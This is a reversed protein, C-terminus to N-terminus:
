RSGEQARRTKAKAIMRSREDSQTWTPRLIRFTELHTRGGSSGEAIRGRLTMEYLDVVTTPRLEVEWEIQRNDALRMHGGGEVKQRNPESLLITRLTRWDGADQGLEATARLAALTNVYAASLGIAALAFIALSVLVELLTMGSSNHRLKM